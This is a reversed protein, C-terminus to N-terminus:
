AVLNERDRACEHREWVMLRKKICMPFHGTRIEELRQRIQEAYQKHREKDPVPLRVDPLTKTMLSALMEIQRELERVLPHNDSFVRLMDERQKRMREVTEARTLGTLNPIQMKIREDSLSHNGETEM